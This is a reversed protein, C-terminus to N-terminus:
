PQPAVQLAESIWTSRRTVGLPIRLATTSKQAINLGSSSRDSVPISSKPPRIGLITVGTCKLSMMAWKPSLGEVKGFIKSTQLHSLESTKLIAAAQVLDQYKTSKKSSTSLTKMRSPPTLLTRSITPVHRKRRLAVTMSLDSSMIRMTSTTATHSTRQGTGYSLRMLDPTFKYPTVSGNARYTRYTTKIDVAIRHSHEGKPTLIFDPYYNQQEPTELTYGHEDAIERLLPETLMEFIRGLLKTDHNITYVTLDRFIFGKAIWDVQREEVKDYFAQIIDFM